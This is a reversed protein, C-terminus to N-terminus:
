AIVPPRRALVEAGMRDIFTAKDQVAGTFSIGDVGIRELELLQERVQAGTGILAFRDYIFDTLGLEDLLEVNATRSSATSAHQSFAYRTHFERLPAELREPVEKWKLAFRFADNASAAMITAVAARAEAEDDSIFGKGLLWFELPEGARPGAARSERGLAIAKSVIAPDKGIDFILADATRAAAAIAKPGSAAVFIPIDAPEGWNLRTLRGDRDTRAFCDRIIEVAEELSATAAPPLGVNYVASNGAAIGLFARGGTLEDISAIGSATVTPHRTAPNTVMPGVRVRETAMAAVTLAVYLERWVSHSDPIGVLDFGAREAQKALRAVDPLAESTQMISIGFRM